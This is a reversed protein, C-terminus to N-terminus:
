NEFIAFQPAFVKDCKKFYEGRHKAFSFNIRVINLIQRLIYKASNLKSKYTQLDVTCTASSKLDTKDQLIIGINSSLNSKLRNLTGSCCVKLNKLSYLPEIAYGSGHLSFFAKSIWLLLIYPFHFLTYSTFYTLSM